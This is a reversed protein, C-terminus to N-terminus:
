KIEFPWNVELSEKKTNPYWANKIFYPKKNNDTKITFSGDSNREYINTVYEVTTAGHFDGIYTNGLYSLKGNGFDYLQETDSGRFSGFFNKTKTATDYILTYEVSCGLGTCPHYAMTVLIIESKKGPTKYLKIKDWNNPFGLSDKKTDTVPNLTIHDDLTFLHSGIKIRTRDESDFWQIRHGKITVDTLKLDINNLSDIVQVKKSALHKEFQKYFIEAQASDKSTTAVIEKDPAPVKKDKGPVEKVETRCSIIFLTLVTTLLFKM